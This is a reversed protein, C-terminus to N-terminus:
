VMSPHFNMHQDIINSVEDIINKSLEKGELSVVSYPTFIQTFLVRLAMNVAADKALDISIPEISIADNDITKTM